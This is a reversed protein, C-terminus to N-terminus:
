EKPSSVNAWAQGVLNVVDAVDFPKDVVRFVGLGDAESVHDATLHASM